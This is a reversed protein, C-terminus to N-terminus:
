HRRTKLPPLHAAACPICSKCNVRQILRTTKREAMHGANDHKLFRVRGVLADPVVLQHIHRKNFQYEIYLLGSRNNLVLYKFKRAWPRLTPNTTILTERGLRLQSILKWLVPDANQLDKFEQICM